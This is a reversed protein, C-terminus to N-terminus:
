DQPPKEGRLLATLTPWRASYMPEEPSASRPRTPSEKREGKLLFYRKRLEKALRLETEQGKSQHSQKGCIVIVVDSSEIRRRAEKVWGEDIQTRISNDTFSFPAKERSAQAVLGNKVDLDDFDFSIFVRLRGQKSLSGSNTKRKRSM